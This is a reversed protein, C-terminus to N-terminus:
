EKGLSTKLYRVEGAESLAAIFPAIDSECYLTVGQPYGDILYDVYWVTKDYFTVEQVTGLIVIKAPKVPDTHSNLYVACYAFLAMIAFLIGIICYGIAKTM